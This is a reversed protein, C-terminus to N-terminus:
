LSSPGSSDSSGGGSGSHEPCPHGSRDPASPSASPTATPTAAAGSSDSAASALAAAGGIFAGALVLAVLANRIRAIL